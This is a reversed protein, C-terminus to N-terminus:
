INWGLNRDNTPAFGQAMRRTYPIAMVAPYKYEVKYAKM